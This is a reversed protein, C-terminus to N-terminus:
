KEHNKDTYTPGTLVAEFDHGRVKKLTELEPENWKPDPAGSLFWDGGNDAIIMGYKKLAILIVQASKPFPTIDFDARLRFRAGMPPLNPDNSRSAWHRAPLIYGRSSKTITFRLAHNIEGAAVEDHRTLLPFIPLGAADASTWTAPRLKNSALDFIAGSGAKWAGGPAAPPFCHFLEYLKKNQYDILLIHRDSDNAAKPGGEIPADPPIPYPGPDSEDPYDFKVNVRPQNGPVLVFPIGSPAGNWVVGFDPHLPKNPGISEVWKKSLPHVPLKSVDQNLPNDPPFIPLPGNPTKLTPSKSIAPVSNGAPIRPVEDGPKAYSATLILIALAFLATRM